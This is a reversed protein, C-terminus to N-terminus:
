APYDNATATSPTASRHSGTARGKPVERQQRRPNSATPAVPAPATPIPQEDKGAPSRTVNPPPAAPMKGDAGPTDLPVKLNGSLEVTNASVVAINEAVGSAIRDAIRQARVEGRLNTNNLKDCDRQVDEANRNVAIKTKVVSAEMNRLRSAADKAADANAEHKDIIATAEELAAESGSERGRTRCSRGSSVRPLSSRTACILSWIRLRRRPAQWRIKM